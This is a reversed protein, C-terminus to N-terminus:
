DNEFSRQSPAPLCPRDADVPVGDGDSARGGATDACTSQEVDEPPAPAHPDSPQPAAARPPLAIPPAPFAGIRAEAEPGWWELKRLDGQQSRRAAEGALANARWNEGRPRAEWTVPIGLAGGAARLESLLPALSVEHLRWRGEAQRVVLASDGRCHLASLQGGLVEPIRAAARLGHIASSYEAFNNTGEGLPASSAWIVGGGEAAPALILAGAGAPGPNRLSAGDFELTYSTAPVELPPVHWAM